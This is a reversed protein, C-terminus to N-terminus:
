HAVFHKRECQSGFSMAQGFISLQITIVLCGYQIKFSHHPEVLKRLRFSVEFFSVNLILFELKGASLSHDMVAFIQPTSCLNLLSISIKILYTKIDGKILYFVFEL